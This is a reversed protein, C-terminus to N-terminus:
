NEKGKLINMLEEPLQRHYKLLIKRALFTQGDTLTLVGALAHGIRADLKNFGSADRRLAYDCMGALIRLCQLAAARQEDTAVPFKAPLARGEASPITPLDRETSLDLAMDAIEQKEVLAKAMRADLSGDLVLHQVLVSESQGIRHCRDEAQTVNGPVWDLEAFVVTSSATLTIGVGAAGISGVFIQVNENNQFSDVAVQRDVPSTQGTLVVSHIEREALASQIGEIVDHHHAFLVIKQGNELLEELHEVVKPLKALATEHRLISIETFAVKSADRLRKVAKEYEEPNGAAHALDLEDRLQSLDEEISSWKKREAEVAKSAGNTPLEVIQRRKPPLETLVDKKLRRVMCNARLRDQLEDLHSAGSFDWGWKSQYAACYRKAFGFFTGWENPMIGNLLPYLEIPRNLIPTGTLFLSRKAKSVIGETTEGKGKHGLVSKTQQAKPNKLKHSEDMVMLDWDISLIQDRIEKKRVLDYNTVLFLNEKLEITSKGDSIIQFDFPRVLWKRAEREWNIRLSAPCIVLVRKIAPDANITGLAQITKGLGMEDAILASRKGMAYAIGAKQFPRYELGDPHPISIDSNMAKSAEVAEGVSLLEAKCSEDAYQALCAAIEKRFTWWGRGIDAECAGCKPRACDLGHWWFGAAKPVAREDYSCIAVWVSKHKVVRM